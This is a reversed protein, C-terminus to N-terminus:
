RIVRKRKSDDQKKYNIISEYESQSIAGKQEPDLMRKIFKLPIKVNSNDYKFYLGYPGSTLMVPKSKVEAMKKPLNALFKIDDENINTYSKNTYKLYSKIDIYKPKDDHTYQVVPGYKAVRVIYEKGNILYKLEENKIKLKAEKAEKKQQEIRQVDSGFTKWFTGLVHSRTTQHEAIKDLDDEMAATFSKDIIYSFNDQLFKDVSEGVATPVLKSKDEGITVTSQQVDIKNNHWIINQTKKDEGRIDTKHIYQKEFLKTLITAFTSPRGISDAELTKIISAESYRVPPSTWTHKGVIKNCSLSYSHSQLLKAMSDFNIEHEKDGYLVLFGNFKCTKFSSKFYMNTPMNRNVIRLELENHVASAMFCAVTRKWIMDYLKKHDRTLDQENLTNIDVHTPRIAEHAEQAHKKNNRKKNDGVYHDGYKSRVFSVADNAFDQSINYSDTRMYTIHGKEYLEQALSMTRKVPFGLKSYAEQQISSTIFPLPPSQKLQRQKYEKVFFDQKIKTLLQHTKDFADNGELKYVVDNNYLRVDEIDHVSKDNNGLKLNFHGLIYYFPTSQFSIIEKEKQAIIHLAASQVRGASLNLRNANFTKWLLPSLKFGVLRDLIRRTEQAEVLDDDISRPNRIARELASPTIETFTIRYYKKLGLVQKLHECIAEGERDFDAALYVNDVTLAKDKLEKVLAVKDTLVEYQPQFDHLIDISIEKKKLDRIHGKSSMVIFKGFERLGKSTNLYKSITKAKAPSEVIVLNKHSVM